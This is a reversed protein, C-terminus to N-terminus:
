IPVHPDQGLSLARIVGGRGKGGGAGEGEGVVRERGGGRGVVRKRGGGRRVGM